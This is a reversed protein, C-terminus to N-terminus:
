IVRLEHQRQDQTEKPRHFCAQSCDQEDTEDTKDLRAIIYNFARKASSDISRMWQFAWLRRASSDRSAFSFSFFIYLTTAEAKPVTALRRHLTLNVLLGSIANLANSRAVL